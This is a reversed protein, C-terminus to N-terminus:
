HLDANWLGLRPSGPQNPEIWDLDETPNRSFLQGGFKSNQCFDTKPVNFHL